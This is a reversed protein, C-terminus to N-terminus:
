GRPAPTVCMVWLLICIHPHCSKQPKSGNARQQDQSSWGLAGLCQRQGTGTAGGRHLIVGLVDGGLHMPAMVVMVPAMVMPAVMAVPTIMPMMMTVPVAPLVPRKHALSNLCARLGRAQKAHSVLDDPSRECSSMTRMFVHIAHLCPNCAGDECRSQRQNPRNRWRTGRGVRFGADM